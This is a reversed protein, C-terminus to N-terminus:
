IERSAIDNLIVRRLLHFTKAAKCGGHEKKRKDRLRCRRRRRRNPFLELPGYADRFAIRLIGGFHDDGGGDPTDTTLVRTWDLLQCMLAHVGALKHEKRKKFLMQLSSKPNKRIYKLM